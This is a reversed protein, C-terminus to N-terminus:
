NNKSKKWNVVNLKKERGIKRDEEKHKEWWEKVEPNEDILEFYNKECVRLVTCLLRALKDAHKKGTEIEKQLYRNQSQYEQVSPEGEYDRCPM